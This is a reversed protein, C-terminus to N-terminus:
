TKNEIKIETSSKVTAITALTDGLQVLVSALLVLEDVTLICGIGNAIATVASTIELSKM